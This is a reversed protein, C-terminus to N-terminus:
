GLGLDEKIGMTNHAIVLTLLLFLITEWIFEDDADRRSM